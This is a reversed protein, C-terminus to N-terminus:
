YEVPGIKPDWFPVGGAGNGQWVLDPLHRPSHFPMCPPSYKNPIYLTYAIYIYIHIIYLYM